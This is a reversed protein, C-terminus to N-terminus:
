GCLIAVNFNVYIIYQVQQSYYEPIFRQNNVIGQVGLIGQTQVKGIFM